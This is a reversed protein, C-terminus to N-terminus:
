VLVTLRYSITSFGICTQDIDFLFVAPISAHSLHGHFALLANKSHFM